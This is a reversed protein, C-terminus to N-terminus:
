PTKRMRFSMDKRRYVSLVIGMIFAHFLTPILGYSIFPLSISARPLLGLIMGINYIFHFVFLTVGGVLLLKGYGDNIKYAINMIRVAFLSLILVLILTLVYGYYYTLSAFVFDTHTAPISKINGYTGFWGASSMAEKLRLYWQDHAPNLFGLIRAMRYEKVASWSFLDRIVFPLIPLITILWATKKGLKSWWLMVFVMTIYIFTPVMTSFLYLSFVYLMLLHIFKLRSNNFFSAWALFFFPITMLCDITIFGIKILPEGILFATPFYKIMLLILIGITYFLWGLRELKRYDFLMMGIATAVGLIVFIVKNMFLDAHGFTIVPLFGLGMAAVLLILLFWDVKPKHLKNLEQGLKIPSGMQEVAKDEAVEESLGKGIWMDKTQKLHFDLETAVLDKAEKSKIHNTVERLFHEGKKNM